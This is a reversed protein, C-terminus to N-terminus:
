SGVTGRRRHMQGQDPKMRIENGGGLVASLVVGSALNFYSVRELSCLLLHWATGNQIM